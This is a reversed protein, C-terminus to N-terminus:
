GMGLDENGFGDDDMVDTLRYRDTIGARYSAKFPLLGSPTM